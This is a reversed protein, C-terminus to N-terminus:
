PYLLILVMKTSATFPHIFRKPGQSELKFFFNDKCIIDIKQFELIPCIELKTTYTHTLPALFNSHLYSCTNSEDYYNNRYAHILETVHLIEKTASGLREM